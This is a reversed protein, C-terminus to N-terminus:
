VTCGPPVVCCCCCGSCCAAGGACLFPKYAPQPQHFSNSPGFPELLSVPDLLAIKPGRFAVCPGHSPLTLSIISSVAPCPSCSCRAQLATLLPPRARPTRGVTHCPILLRSWVVPQSPPINRARGPPAAPPNQRPLLDSQRRISAPSRLLHHWHLRVAPQPQPRSHASGMAQPKGPVSERRPHSTCRATHSPHLAGPSRRPASSGKWYHSHCRRAAPPPTSRRGPRRRTGCLWPAGPRCM